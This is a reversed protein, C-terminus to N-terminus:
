GQAAARKRENVFERGYQGGKCLLDTYRDNRIPPSSCMIMPRRCLVKVSKDLGFMEAISGRGFAM